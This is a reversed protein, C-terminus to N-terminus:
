VTRTAIAPAVSAAKRAPFLTAGLGILWLGAVGLALYYLPLRPMRFMVSLRSGLALALICGVMVGATSILWNEVLFYRFIDRRRAGIARRTGIQRTRTAVNFAALGFIGIATVALVLLAVVGLIISSARLGSRTNSATQALTEMHEIYRGPVNDAFSQEVQAMVEALQGPKTRVLYFTSPGAPMTPVFVVNEAFDAFPAPAPQTEIREVIGVIKAPRNILGAYLTKGLADGKPFLKRALRDTIAVEPAWRAIASMIEPAATTADSHPARGAILRVGLADLGRETMLLVGAGAQGAKVDPATSFPLGIGGFSGQPITASAAAAIVGPLGNLYALDARLAASQDYGTGFGQSMVWFINDVDIGTPRRYTEIRGAVVYAINVLVALAIAIQAAILLPGTRSRWLAKLLARIEM